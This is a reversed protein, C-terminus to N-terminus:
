LAKNLEPHTALLTLNLMANQDRDVIQEYKPCSPNYRIYQNHSTHHKRNGLLTIRDDGKQHQWLCCM